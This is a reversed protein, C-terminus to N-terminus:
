IHVQILMRGGSGFDCESIGIIQRLSVSNLQCSIYKM